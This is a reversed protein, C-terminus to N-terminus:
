TSPSRGQSSGTTADDLWDDMAAAARRDAETVFQAYRSLLMMPSTWGGRGQVTRVDHGTVLLTTSMTGRLDHLRVGDLGVKHRLRGWTHTVANASIHEGWLRPSPFVWWDDNMPGEVAEHQAAVIERWDSLAAVTSPGLAVIKPTDTKSQYVSMAGGVLDIDCWRLAVLEGRRAGTHIALRLLMAFPPEALAIAARIREPDPVPRPAPRGVRPLTALHAPNSPLDGWRVAQNLAAHLLIHTRKITSPALGQRRLRVYLTDIDKTTLKHLPRAGLVGLVRRELVKQTHEVNEASWDRTALWNDILEALSGAPVREGRRQIEDYLNRAVAEAERRGKATNPTHVTRSEFRRRGDIDRGALVQV